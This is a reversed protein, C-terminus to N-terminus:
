TVLDDRSHQHGSRAEIDRCDENHPSGHFPATLEVVAGGVGGRNGFPEAHELSALDVLRRVPPQLVTCRRGTPRTREESRGIRHATHSFGHTHTERSTRGDRRCMGISQTGCLFGPALNDPQQFAADCRALDDVPLANFVADADTRGDPPRRIDGQVYRRDAILGVAVDGHVEQFFQTAACWVDGLHVRCRRGINGVEVGGSANGRNHFLNEWEYIAVGQGHGAFCNRFIHAICLYFILTDNLGHRIGPASFTAEGDQASVQGGVGGDGFWSRDHGLHM